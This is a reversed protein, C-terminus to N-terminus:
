KLVKGTKHYWLYLDLEGLNFGTKESLKKLINEAEIYKKPTLTKPREMLGEEVMLNIIHKDIIAVNSYGINRLFHSAEKMGIGKVNKVIWERRQIDDGLDSLIKKIKDKLERSEYIYNARANPFRHGLRILEKSLDELSLKWFGSGIEKQIRLGGAASYNATLFCFCMESYIEESTANEFNAFEKMRGEIVERIETKRLNEVINLVSQM